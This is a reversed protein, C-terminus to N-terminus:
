VLDTLVNSTALKDSCGQSAVRVKGGVLARTSTIMTNTGQCGIHGCLNVYMCCAKTARLM